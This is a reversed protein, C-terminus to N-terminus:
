SQVNSLSEVDCGYVWGTFGSPALIRAYPILDKNEGGWHKFHSYELNLIIAIEGEFLTSNGTSILNEGNPLIRFIPISHFAKPTIADGRKVLDGEV